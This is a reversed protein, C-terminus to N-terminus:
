PKHNKQTANPDLTSHDNAQGPMPMEKSQQQQTIDSNGASDKPAAPQTVENPPIDAPQVGTKDAGKSCGASVMLAMSLILGFRFLKISHKM